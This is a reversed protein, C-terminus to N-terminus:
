VVGKHSRGAREPVRSDMSIRPCAPGRTGRPFGIFCVKYARLLAKKAHEDEQRASAPKPIAVALISFPESDDIAYRERAPRGGAGLLSAFAIRFPPANFDARDLGFRKPM